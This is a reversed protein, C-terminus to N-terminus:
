AGARELIIPISLRYFLLAILLVLISIMFIVFLLFPDEITGKTILNRADILLPSVPNLKVILSYPWDTPPPYVIPTAFFWLRVIVNLIQEVDQFLFGIPIILIGIANGLLILVIMPMMSYIIGTSLPINFVLLVGIIVLFQILMNFLVQQVGSIIPAEAPINIKIMIPVSTRFAKIPSNISETFMQWLLTGVLVYVPYPIDTEGLNLIKRENLFVFIITTVIPPILIWFLGLISQRYRQKIDRIFFVNGLNRADNFSLFILKLLVLPHKMRAKSTYVSVPLEKTINNNTKTSSDTM